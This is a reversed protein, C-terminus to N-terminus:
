DRNFLGHLCNKHVIEYHAKGTHPNKKTLNANGNKDRKGIFSISMPVVAEGEYFHEDCLKCYTEGSVSVPERDKWIAILWKFTRRFM